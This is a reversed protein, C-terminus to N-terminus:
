THAWIRHTRLTYHLKRTLISCTIPTPLATGAQHNVQNLFHVKNPGQNGDGISETKVFWILFPDHHHDSPWLVSVQAILWYIYTDCLMYLDESAGQNSWRGLVVFTRTHTHTHSAHTQASSRGVYLEQTSHMPYDYNERTIGAAYIFSRIDSMSIWPRPSRFSDCLLCRGSNHM